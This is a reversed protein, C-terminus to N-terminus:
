GQECIRLKLKVKLNGGSSEVELFFQHANCFLSADEPRVKAWQAISATLLKTKYRKM